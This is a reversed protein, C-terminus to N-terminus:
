ASKELSPGLPSAAILPNGKPFLDKHEAVLRYADLQLRANVVVTDAVNVIAEARKIEQAIADPSLTEDALRELQAFLYDNLDTLKNKM